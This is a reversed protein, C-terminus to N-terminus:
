RLKYKIHADFSSIQDFSVYTFAAGTVQRAEQQGNSGDHFVESVFIIGSSTVAFPIMNSAFDGWQAHGGTSGLLTQARADGLANSLLLVCIVIVKTAFSTVKGRVRSEDGNGFIEKFVERLDAVFKRRGGPVSYQGIFAKVRLQQATSVAFLAVILAGPLWTFVFAFTFFSSESFDLYFYCFTFYTVTWQVTPVLFRRVGRSTLLRLAARPNEASFEKRKGLALARRESLDTWRLAVLFVLAIAGIIGGAMVGFFRSIAYILILLSVHNFVFTSDVFLYFSGPMWSVFSFINVSLITLTGLLTAGFKAADTLNFDGVGRTKEVIRSRVDTFLRNAKEKLGEVNM